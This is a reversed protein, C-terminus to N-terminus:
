RCSRGFATVPTNSRLAPPLYGMCYLFQPCDFSAPNALFQYASLISSSFSSLLFQCFIWSPFADCLMNMVVVTPFQTIFKNEKCVCM